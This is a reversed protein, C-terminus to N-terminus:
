DYYGKKKKPISKFYYRLGGWLEVRTLNDRNDGDLSVRDRNTGSEVNYYNLIGTTYDVGLTAFLNDTLSFDFSLHVGMSFTSSTLKLPYLVVANNQYATYGASLAPLFHFRGTKSVVRSSVVFQFSHININDSIEGVQYGGGDLEFLVNEMRNQAHTLYYKAGLGFYRGFFYAADVKLTVGSKLKRIYDQIETPFSDSVKALRYSYGLGLGLMFGRKINSKKIPENAFQYAEAPEMYFATGPPIDKEYSKVLNFAIKKKDEVNGNQTFIIYSGEINEIKCLITDGATTVIRDQASATQLLSLECFFLLTILINHIM